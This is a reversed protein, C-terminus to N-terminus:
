GGSGKSRCSEQCEAEPFYEECANKRHSHPYGSDRLDGRQEPEPLDAQPGTNGDPFASRRIDGTGESVESLICAQARAAETLEQLFERDKEWGCTRLLPLIAAGYQAAPWIFGYELSTDLAASIEGKWSADKQRQRCIATLIRIHLRDMIRGASECYPILRSLLLMAEDTEGEGIQVMARTLYQYRWMPWLHVENGPARKMWERVAEMDGTRLSIRTFMADM